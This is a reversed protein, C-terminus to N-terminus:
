NALTAEDRILAGQAQLLAAAYPRPDIEALPAGKKVVQGEKYLVEMLQGDVRTHVTVTYVPTVAGLGNYYVGINGKQVVAATVPIPPPPGKKADRAAAKNKLSIGIWLGVGLLAALLLWPWVRRHPHDKPERPESQPLIPTTQSQAPLTQLDSTQSSHDM